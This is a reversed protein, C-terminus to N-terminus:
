GTRLTLVTSGRPGAATEVGTIPGVAGGSAGTGVLEEAAATLEEVDSPEGARRVLHGALVGRTHKAFHSVVRGAADVVRVQVVGPGGTPVPWAAAYTASRCDVVLRDRAVDDLVATLHPRWARALPGIGPLDTGMSLRYAPIRDRPTVIGWLASVVRVRRATAEVPSHALGAASYLVGSYVEAAPATPAARLHVNARVEGELSPGVGLIAMADSRASVTALADLVAQRHETLPPHSLRALDVPPGAAPATKGESPPLLVLM